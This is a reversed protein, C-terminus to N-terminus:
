DFVPVGGLTVGGQSGALALGAGLLVVLPVAVLSKREAADM